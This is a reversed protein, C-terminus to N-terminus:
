IHILSLFLQGFDGGRSSLSGTLSFRPYLDAVAVGVNAQRKYVDSCPAVSPNPVTTGTGKM